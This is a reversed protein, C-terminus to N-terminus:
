LSSAHKLIRFVITVDNSVYTRTELVFPYESWLRTMGPVHAVGYTSTVPIITDPRLSRQLVLWAARVLNHGVMVRACIHIRQMMVSTSREQSRKDAPRAAHLDTSTDNRRPFRKSPRIHPEKLECVCCDCVVGGVVTRSHTGAMSPRQSRPGGTM